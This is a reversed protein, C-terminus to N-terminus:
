YGGYGTTAKVVDLRGFIGDKEENPGATFYLASEQFALGWLGPVQLAKGSADQLTGLAKITYGRTADALSYANIKGDGFNGILLTDKALSGYPKENITMGWPSNLPGGSLLRQVFHGEQDFVNIFGNGPGAVDDAGQSDQKAYSVFLFDDYNWVNFPAFGKPLSPDSFDGATDVDDYNADYVHIKANRFDALYLRHAALAGGKYNAHEDSSDHRLAFAAGSSWGFIGGEESFTLFKDGKFDASNPNFLQGTPAQGGPVSATLALRGDPGYAAVSSSGASSVWAIGTPGFALGWANSLNKDRKAAGTGNSVLDVRRVKQKALKTKLDQDETSSPSPEDASSCATSTAALFACAVFIGLEIKMVLEKSFAPIAGRPSRAM